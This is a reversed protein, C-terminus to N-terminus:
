GTHLHCDLLAHATNTALLNVTEANIGEDKFFLTLFNSKKKLRIFGVMSSYHFKGDLEECGLEGDIM